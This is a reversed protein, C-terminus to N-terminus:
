QRTLIAVFFLILNTGDKTRSDLKTNLAAICNCLSFSDKSNIIREPFYNIILNRILEKLENNNFEEFISQLEVISKEEIESKTQLQELESMKEMAEGPNWDLLECLFNFPSFSNEEDRRNKGIMFNYCASDSLGKARLEDNQGGNRGILEEIQEIELFYNSAEFLSDIETKEELKIELIKEQLLDDFKCSSFGILEERKELFEDLRQRTAVRALIVHHSRLVRRKSPEKEFKQYTWCEWDACNEIKEQIKSKVQNIYTQNLQPM